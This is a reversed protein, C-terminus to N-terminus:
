AIGDLSTKGIYAEPAYSDNVIPLGLRRRIDRIEFEDRKRFNKLTAADLQNMVQFAELRQKAEKIEQHPTIDVDEDEYTPFTVGPPAFSDANMERWIALQNDDYIDDFRVSRQFDPKEGDEAPRASSTPPNPVKMGRKFPPLNPISEPKYKNMRTQLEEIKEKL